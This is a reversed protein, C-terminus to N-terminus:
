IMIDVIIRIVKVMGHIKIIVIKEFYKSFSTYDGSLHGVDHNGALVGYPMNADDLMKYANDANIWEQEQDEDDIIDGDHFLYQINM